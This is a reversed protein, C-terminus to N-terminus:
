LCKKANDTDLLCLHDAYDRCQTTTTCNMSYPHKQDKFIIM